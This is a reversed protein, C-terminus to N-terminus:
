LQNTDYCVGGVIAQTPVIQTKVTRKNGNSDTLVKAEECLKFVTFDADYGESIKGKTNLSFYEAPKVTVKDILSPLDYGVELLKELTTALDHVPGEERNRHYIDTSITTALLEEKFAVEAVHFNFSDTGHGIDFIIGKNYAEWVFAKISDDSALIGNEKGNFCHTVIDGKDLCNLIDSLEPPASGIHVMLPIDDCAKQIEKALVLPQIGNDGIVTKSMRAKLGVIFDPYQKLVKQVREKKIKNLDSLEDQALIGWESINVLALVNTHAKAALDYFEGINQAGTSGADIVTTVGKSIGIEDPFDYYLSLKEFCHVHSDIWGASLYEDDSLWLVNTAENEICPAVKVIRGESVLIDCRENSVLQANKILLDAM